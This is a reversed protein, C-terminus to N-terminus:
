TLLQSSFGAAMRMYEVCKRANVRVDCREKAIQRNRAGMATRLEGDDLLRALRDALADYDNIPVLFGNKGEEVWEHCTPLNHLVLPLSAAMAELMSQPTGDSLTVSVAIDAIGLFSIIREPSQGGLMLIRDELNKDKVLRQVSDYEPGYGVMIMKFPISTKGSLKEVVHPIARMNHVPFFLRTSIIVKESTLGLEERLAAAGGSGGYLASDVGFQPFAVTKDKAPPYIRKVEDAVYSNDCYIIRAKKLTYCTMWKMVRNRRPLILIDSGWVTLFFQRIGSLAIVFGDRQVYGANVVHCAHRKFYHPLLFPAVLAHIILLSMKVITSGSYVWPFYRVVPVNLSRINELVEPGTNPHHRLLRESDMDHYTFFVM